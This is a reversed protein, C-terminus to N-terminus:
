ADNGCELDFLNPQKGVDASMSKLISTTHQKSMPPLSVVRGGLKEVLLIQAERGGVLNTSDSMVLINPTVIKILEDIDHMVVVLDVCEFAAVVTSRIGQHNYPRKPGKYRRVLVDSDVGVVLFDGQQRAEQLYLPHGDHIVDFAGSTLVVRIDKLMIRMQDFLRKFQVTNSVVKSAINRM